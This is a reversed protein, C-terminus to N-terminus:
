ALSLATLVSLMTHSAGLHFRSVPLQVCCGGFALNPASGGVCSWHLLFLTPLSHLSRREQVSKATVQSHTRLPGDTLWPSPSLAWSMPGGPEDEGSSHAGSPLHDQSSESSGWETSTPLLSSARVELLWAELQVQPRQLCLPDALACLQPALLSNRDKSEWLSDRM